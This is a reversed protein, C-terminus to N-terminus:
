SILQSLRAHQVARHQYLHHPATHHPATPPYPHTSNSYTAKEREEEETGVCLAEPSLSRCSGLVVCYLVTCCLMRAPDTVYLVTSHRATGHRATCDADVIQGRSLEISTRWLKCIKGSCRIQRQYCYFARMQM